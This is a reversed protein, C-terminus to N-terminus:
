QQPAREARPLRPPTGTRTAFLRQDYDKKLAPNRALWAEAAHRPLGYIPEFEQETRDTKRRRFPRWLNNLM